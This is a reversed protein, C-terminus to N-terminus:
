MVLGSTDSAWCEFLLDCVVLESMNLLIDNGMKLVPIKELLVLIHRCNCAWLYFKESSLRISSLSDIFFFLCSFIWSEMGNTSPERILDIRNESIDLAKWHNWENGEEVCFIREENGEDWYPWIGNLLWLESLHRGDGCLSTQNWM